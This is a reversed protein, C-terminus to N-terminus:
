GSPVLSLLRGIAANDACIPLLNAEAAEGLRVDPRELSALYAHVRAKYAQRPVGGPGRQMCEIYQEVCAAAPEGALVSWLMQELDGTSSGDPWVFAVVQLSRDASGRPEWAREPV